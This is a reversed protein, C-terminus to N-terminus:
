RDGSDPPGTISVDCLCAPVAGDPGDGEPADRRATARRAPAPLDLARLDLRGFPELQWFLDTIEHMSKPTVDTMQCQDALKVQMRFRLNEIDMLVIGHAGAAMVLLLEVLLLNM